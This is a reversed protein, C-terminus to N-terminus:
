AHRSQWLLASPIEAEGSRLGGRWALVLVLVM